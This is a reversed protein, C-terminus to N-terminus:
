EQVEVEAEGRVGFCAKPFLVSMLSGPIALLVKACVVSTFDFRGFAHTTVGCCSRLNHVCPAMWLSEMVVHFALRRNRVLYWNERPVEAFLIVVRVVLLVLM